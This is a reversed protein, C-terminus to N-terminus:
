NWSKLWVAPLVVSAYQRCPSEEVLVSECRNMFNISTSPRRPVIGSQTPVRQYHFAQELQPCFYVSPCSFILGQCPCRYSERHKAHGTEKLLVLQHAQQDRSPGFRIEAQM